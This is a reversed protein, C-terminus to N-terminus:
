GGFRSREEIIMDYMESDDIIKLMEGSLRWRGGRQKNVIRTSFMDMLIGLAYKDGIRLEIGVDEVTIPDQEELMLSVVKRRVEPATSFTVRQMLEWCRNNMETIRHVAMLGYALATSMGSMRGPLEPQAAPEYEESGSVRLRSVLTAMKGLRDRDSDTLFPRKFRTNKSDIFEHVMGAAKRRFGDKDKDRSKTGARGMRYADELTPTAVRLYLWREGMDSVKTTYKDIRPTVGAVVNFHGEALVKKGNGWQAEFRGDHAIRFQSMIQRCNSDSFNKTLDPIALTQNGMSILQLVLCTQGPDQLSITSKQLDESEALTLDEDQEKAELESIKAQLGELKKSDREEHQYGSMLTKETISDRVVINPGGGLLNALIESKGGGSPAVLIGFLSGSYYRRAIPIALSFELMVKMEEDMVLYYEMAEVIDGLTISM